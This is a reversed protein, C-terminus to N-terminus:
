NIFTLKLVNGNVLFIHNLTNHQECCLSVDTFTFGRSLHGFLRFQFVHSLLVDCCMVASCSVVRSLMVSCSVTLCLAVCIQVCFCCLIYLVVVICYFVFVWCHCPVFCFCLAVYVVGCSLIVVVVVVVVCFLMVWSMSIVLVRAHSCLPFFFVNGSLSGKEATQAHEYQSLELLANGSLGEEERGGGLFFKQASEPVISWM